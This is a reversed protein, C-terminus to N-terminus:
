LNTNPKFNFVPIEGLIQGENFMTFLNKEIKAYDAEIMTELESVDIKFFHENSNLLAELLDKRLVRGVAQNFIAIKKPADKDAGQTSWFNQVMICKDNIEQEELNDENYSKEIVNGNEDEEAEPLKKAIMVSVIADFKDKVIERASQKQSAEDDNEEVAKQEPEPLAVLKVKKIWELLQKPYVGEVQPKFM